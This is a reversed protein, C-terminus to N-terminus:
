RKQFSFSEWGNVLLSHATGDEARFLYPCKNKQVELEYIGTSVYVPMPCRKPTKIQVARDFEVRQITGAKADCVSMGPRKKGGDGNCFVYAELLYKSHEPRFIAWAHDESEFDLAYIYLDCDGTDEIGPTPVYDYVVGKSNKKTGFFKGFIPLNVVPIEEIYFPQTRHCTAFVIRDIKSIDRPSVQIKYEGAKPASGAGKFCAHESVCFPLDKKHEINPDLQISASSCAVLLSLFISAAVFELKKVKIGM